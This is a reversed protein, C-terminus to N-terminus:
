EKGERTRRELEAQAAERVEPLRGLEASLARLEAAKEILAKKEEDTMQVGSFSALRDELGALGGMLVAPHTGIEQLLSRLREAKLRKEETDLGGWATSPWQPIPPPMGLKACVISLSYQLTDMKESLGKVYGQLEVQGEEVKKVRWPLGYLEEPVSPMTGGPPAPSPVASGKFFEDVIRCVAGGMSEGIEDAYKRVKGYAEESLRVTIALKEEVM